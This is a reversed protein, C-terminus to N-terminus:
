AMFGLKRLDADLEGQVSELERELGSIQQTLEAANQTTERQKNREVYLSVTLRYDQDHILSLDARSSFGPESDRSLFANSIRLIETEPIVNQRGSATFSLSADIFVVDSSKKGKDLILISVPVPTIQFLKAPLSIVGSLLNRNVIYRRIEKGNARSLAGNSVIMGIRGKGPRAAQIMHSLFLSESPSRSTVGPLFLEPRLEQLVKSGLRLNFPPNSVVVDAELIRGNTDRLPQKLPDALEIESHLVGRFFLSIKCLSLDASNQAQGLVQGVKPGVHRALRSLLGGSGCLPDLITDGARPGLSAAMLSGLEPPVLFEGSMGRHEAFFLLREFLDGLEEPEEFSSPRLDAQSVIQVARSLVEVSVGEQSVLNHFQINQNIEELTRPNSELIDRLANDLLSALRPNGANSVLYDWRYGEPVQLHRWAPLWKEDRETTEIDYRTDSVFKLLFLASL